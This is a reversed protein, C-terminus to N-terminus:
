VPIFGLAEAAHRQDASHTAFGIEEGPEVLPRAALDAVALHMAELTHLSYHRTITLAANETAAPDPRTLKVPGDPSVDEYLKEILVDVNSLQKTQRVRFLTSTVEVLSFSATLLLRDSEVLERARAHGPEGALYSRVLVSSDLYVLAPEDM